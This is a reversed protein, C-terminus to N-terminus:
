FCLEHQYINIVSCTEPYELFYLGNHVTKPKPWTLFAVWFYWISIRWSFCSIEYASIQTSFVM